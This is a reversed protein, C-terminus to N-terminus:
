LLSTRRFAADCSGTACFGMPRSAEYCDCVRKLEVPLDAVWQFLLFLACYFSNSPQFVRLFNHGCAFGFGRLVFPIHGDRHHIIASKQHLQLPMSPAGACLVRDSGALACVEAAVRVGVLVSSSTTLSRGAVSDNGPLTGNLASQRDHILALTNAGHPTEPALDFSSSCTAAGSQFSEENRSSEFAQTAPM